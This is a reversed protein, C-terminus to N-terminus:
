TLHKTKFKFPYINMIKSEIKKSLLINNIIKFVSGRKRLYLKNLIKDKKDLKWLYKKNDVEKISSTYKLELICDKCIKEEKISLSKRCIVCGNKFILKRLINILM